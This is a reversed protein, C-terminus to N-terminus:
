RRPFTTPLSTRVGNPGRQNILVGASPIQDAVRGTSRPICPDHGSGGGRIIITGGRSGGGIVVGDGVGGWVSGGESTPFRPEIPRPRPLPPLDSAPAESAVVEATQSVPTMEVATAPTEVSQPAVQVEVPAPPKPGRKAKTSPTVGRRKEGAEIASVVQIAKANQAALELEAEAVLALDSALEDADQGDSSAQFAAVALVAIIAAAVPAAAWRSIQRM